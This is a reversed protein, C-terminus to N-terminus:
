QHEQLKVPGSVTGSGMFLNDGKYQAYLTENIIFSMLLFFNITKM